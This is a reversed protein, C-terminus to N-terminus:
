YFLLVVTRTIGFGSSTRVFFCKNEAKPNFRNFPVTTLQNDAAMRWMRRRVIVTQETSNRVIFIGKRTRPPCRFAELAPRTNRDVRM